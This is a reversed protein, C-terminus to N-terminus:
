GALKKAQARVKAWRRKAAKSIAAKGAASLVRKKVKVLERGTSDALAKGAARVGDLEHQLKRLQKGLKREERKIAALINMLDEAQFAIDIPLAAGSMLSSALSEVTTRSRPMVSHCTQVLLALRSHRGKLSNVM